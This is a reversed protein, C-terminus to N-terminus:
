GYIQQSEQVQVKQSEQVQVKQTEQGQVKQAEQHREVRQMRQAMLLVSRQVLVCALVAM